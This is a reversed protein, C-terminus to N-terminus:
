LALNEFICEATIQKWNEGVEKKLKELSPYFGAIGKNIEEVSYETLDITETYYDEVDKDNDEDWDYGVLTQQSYIYVDENLEICCQQNDQDTFSLYKSEAGKEKVDKVISEVDFKHSSLKLELLLENLQTEGLFM